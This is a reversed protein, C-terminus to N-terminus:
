VEQLWQHADKMSIEKIHAVLAIQDGGNGGITKRCMFGGNKPFIELEGNESKCVPCNGKMQGEDNTHLQLKLLDAVTEIPYTQKLNQIDM